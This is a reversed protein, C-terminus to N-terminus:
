YYEGLIESAERVRYAPHHLVNPSLEVDYCDGKENQDFKAEAGIIKELENVIELVKLRKSTFINHTKNIFTSDGIMPAVMKELDSVSMLYRHANAHLNFKKGKTICDKLFNILTNPNGSPGVMIPLRFIIHDCNASRILEEMRLKHLVYPSKQMSKDLVSVTSFYVLLQSKALFSKLLDTERSYAAAKTERSNSVGSAFITVNDIEKFSSFAGAIVGNGVVM